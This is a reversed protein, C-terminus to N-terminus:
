AAKKERSRDYLRSQCHPCASKGPEVPAGCVLMAPGSDGTTTLDLPTRCRAIHNADPLCDLFRMAVTHPMTGDWAPRRPASIRLDYPKGEPRDGDAANLFLRGPLQYPASAKPKPSALVGPLRANTRVRRPAKDADAMKPRGGGRNGNPKNQFGIAKLKKNRHVIGIVGNRTIRNDHGRIECNVRAMIESATLGEALLGAIFDIEKETYPTM